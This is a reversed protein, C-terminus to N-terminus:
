GRRLSISETPCATICDGCGICKQNDEIAIQDEETAGFVEKECTDVCVLCNICTEENIVVTFM